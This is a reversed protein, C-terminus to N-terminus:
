QGDPAADARVDPKEGEPTSTEGKPTIDDPAAEDGVEIDVTPTETNTGKPPTPEKNSCGGLFLGVAALFALLEGRWRM